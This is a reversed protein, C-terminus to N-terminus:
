ALPGTYQELKKWAEEGFRKRAETYFPTAKLTTRFADVDPSVFVMGSQALETQVSTNLATMAARQKLAAANLNRAVLDRLDDPLAKWARGNALSWYGDWIHGTLSCYKQVENLKSASITPLPNEQGDVIGTQCASYLEAMNISIPTSGLGKFMGVWAPVAPVRIRFGNMDAPTRIPKSNSTMHRLGSTWIRDMAVLGSREIQARIYAGLDGDLAALALTENNLGFGVSNVSAVPVYTSLIAGSLHFFELAGSRLQNLMDADSGLQSAPFYQISLRGGTEERIRDCAAQGWVTLPHSVAQNGGFKYDFEAASAPRTLINIALGSVVSGAAGKIIARRSLTM